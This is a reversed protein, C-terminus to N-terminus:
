KRILNLVDAQDAEDIGLHKGNKEKTVCVTDGFLYTGQLEQNMGMKKENVYAWFHESIRVAAIEGHVMHQIQNLREGPHKSLTGIKSQIGHDGKTVILYNRAMDM